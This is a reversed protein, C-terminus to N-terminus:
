MRLRRLVPGDSVLFLELRNAGPVFLSEDRVLAGFRRGDKDPDVVPVVAGIRGNVAVALRAGTPVSAPVTGCVLVPLRGGAPDIADFDAANTVTVDTGADSIPLDATNRGILEPLM